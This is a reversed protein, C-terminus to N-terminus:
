TNRVQVAGATLNGSDVAPVETIRYVISTDDRSTYTDAIQVDADAAAVCEWPAVNVTIGAAAAALKEESRRVFALGTVTATSTTGAAAPTGPTTRTRTWSSGGVSVAGALSRERQALFGGRRM